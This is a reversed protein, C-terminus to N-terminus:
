CTYHVKMNMKGRLKENERSYLLFFLINNISEPIFFGPAWRCSGCNTSTSLTSLDKWLNFAQLKMLFNAMGTLKIKM